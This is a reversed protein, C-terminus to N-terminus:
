MGTKILPKLFLILLSVLGIIVIKPNMNVISHPIEALLGLVDEASPKVGLLTHIQKSIIIIGIAALM